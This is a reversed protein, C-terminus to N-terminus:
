CLIKADIGTLALKHGLRAACVRDFAGSVDARYVAISHGKAMGSLWKLICLLLIDRVGRDPTYAFQQPGFGVEILRPMFFRSLLREM